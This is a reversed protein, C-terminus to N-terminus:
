ALAAGVAARMVDRPARLRPFWHEFALAGQEVLMERGDAARCGAHRLARVWATEGRRYVLDLAVTARPLAAPPLPLPDGEALGLPSCNIAVRCEAIDALPVGLARAADALAKAREATRSQVAV